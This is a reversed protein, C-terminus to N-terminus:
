LTEFVLSTVFNICRLSRIIPQGEFLTVFSLCDVVQHHAPRHAFIFLCEFFTLFFCIIFLRIIPQGTLRKCISPWSYTTCGCDDWRTNNDFKYQVISERQINHFIIDTSSNLDLRYGNFKRLCACNQVARGNPQGPGWDTFAAM